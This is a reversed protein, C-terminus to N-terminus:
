MELLIIGLKSLLLLPVLYAVFKGNTGAVPDRRVFAEKYCIRLNEINIEYTQVIALIGTM